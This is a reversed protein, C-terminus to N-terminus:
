CVYFRRAMMTEGSESQISKGDALVGAVNRGDNDNFGNGIRSARWARLYHIQCLGISSERGNNKGRGKGRVVAECGDMMCRRRRRSGRAGTHPATRVSGTNRSQRHARLVGRVARAGAGREGKQLASMRNEYAAETEKKMCCEPVPHEPTCDFVDYDHCDCNWYPYMTRDLEDAYQYWDWAIPKGCNPCQERM